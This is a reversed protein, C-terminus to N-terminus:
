SRAGAAAAEVEELDEKRMDGNPQALADRIGCNRLDHPRDFTSSSSSSSSSATSSNGHGRIDLM